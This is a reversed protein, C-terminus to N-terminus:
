NRQTKEMNVYEALAERWDRLGSFGNLRLAKQMLVSYAPRPAPRPFERTSVPIVATKLGALDMISCALEYWSCSGAGSIHYTGYKQSSALEELKLALDRTYTPCGIQDDVVSIREQSSALNLMTKVFNSGHHGYVWSTRVIFFRSHLQRVFEEGQLKSQGYVNIPHTPHFEDYPEQGAGGGFVYDTSIYILKAQISEAAAAINRTGYANIEYAKDQESEARDVNTYAAAHIVVGPKLRQLVHYCQEIDTIDLEQHGLGHVEYGLSGLVELLERGLQGEAGTVLVSSKGKHIPTTLESMVRKERKGRVLVEVKYSWNLHNM